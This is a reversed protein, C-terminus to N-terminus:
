RWCNQIKGNRKTKHCSVVSLLCCNKIKMQREIHRKYLVIDTSRQGNVTSQQIVAFIIFNEIRIQYSTPVFSTRSQNSPFIM